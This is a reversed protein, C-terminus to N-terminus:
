KHKYKFDDILWRGRDRVVAWSGREVAVGSHDEFIVEVVMRGEGISVEHIVLLQMIKEVQRDFAAFVEESQVLSRVYLRFSEKARQTLLNEEIAEFDLDKLLGLYTRCLRKPTSLDIVPGENALGEFSFAIFLGIPILIAKRWGILGM